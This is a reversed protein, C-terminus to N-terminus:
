VDSKEATVVVAIYFHAVSPNSSIVSGRKINCMTKIVHYSEAHSLSTKNKSNFGTKVTEEICYNCLHAM